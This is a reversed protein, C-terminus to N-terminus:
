ARGTFLGKRYAFKQVCTFCLWSNPLWWSNGGLSASLLLPLRLPWWRGCKGDRETFLSNTDSCYLLCYSSIQALHGLYSSAYSPFSKLWGLCKRRRIWTTTSDILGTQSKTVGHVAAHLVERDKVIEWFNNLSMGTSNIIGELWRMRQQGRRGDIKGQMLTKELSDARWMLHGFYQLKLKLM